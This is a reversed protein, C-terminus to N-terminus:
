RVLGFRKELENESRLTKSWSFHAVRSRGKDLGIRDQRRDILCLM